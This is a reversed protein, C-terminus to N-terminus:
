ALLSDKLVAYETKSFIHFTKSQSSACNDWVTILTYSQASSYKNKNGLIHSEGHELLGDTEVM